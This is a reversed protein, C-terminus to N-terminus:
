LVSIIRNINLDIIIFLNKSEHIERQCFTKNSELQYSKEYTM